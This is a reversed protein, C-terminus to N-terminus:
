NQFSVVIKEIVGDRGFIKKSINQPLLLGTIKETEGSSYTIEILSKRSRRYVVPTQCITFAFSGKKLEIISRHGKANIYEFNVKKTLYENENFIGNSFSIQGNSTKVGLETMRAIIDEKVQGTMGPQQAGKGAPTHSYPDTPIAGYELPTKDVGIGKNIEFYHKKLKNIVRIGAKEDIAKQILEQVAILLKSVMHWYISGLGEYGYFTGSRGTFSKHDFVKEYIAFVKAKDNKLLASYADPLQDLALGLAYANKFNSNFHFIGKSRFLM